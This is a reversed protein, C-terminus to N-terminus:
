GPAPHASGMLEAQQHQQEEVRLQMACCSPTPLTAPFEHPRGAPTGPHMGVYNWGVVFLRGRCAPLQCARMMWSGGVQAQRTKFTVFAAPVPVDMARAQEEAVQRRLEVLRDRSPPLAACVGVQVYCKCMASVCKQTRMASACLRLESASCCAHRYM